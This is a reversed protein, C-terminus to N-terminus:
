VVLFVSGLGHFLSHLLPSPIKSSTMKHMAEALSRHKVGEVGQHKCPSNHSNILCFLSMGRVNGSVHLEPKVVPPFLLRARKKRCDTILFAAISSSLPLFYNPSQAGVMSENLCLIQHVCDGFCCWNRM